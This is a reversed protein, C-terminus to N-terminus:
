LLFILIVQHLLPLTQNYFSFTSNTGGPWALNPGIPFFLQGSESDVFYQKNPAVGVIGLGDPPAAVVTTQVQHQLRGNVLVEVRM